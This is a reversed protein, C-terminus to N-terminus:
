LSLRIPLRQFFEDYKKGLVTLSYKEQVLRRGNQVIKERLDPNNFLMNVQQVFTEIDDGILINEGNKVDLGEAGKSTSVVPTGLAMSEIIKLRTGSGIRIPVVSVWSHAVAQRVDRLLGTFHVNSDEIVGPFAVGTTDGIITLKVEPNIVKLRPYIEDILFRAADVNAPYTFAGTFVIAGMQPQGYEARYYNTDICHPIIEVLPFNPDVELINQKELESPVTVATVNQLLSHVFRSSKWLTLGTRFKASLRTQKHYADKALGIELADIVTPIGKIQSTCHSIFGPVSVESGIVLDFSDSALIKKVSQAFENNYTQHIARPLPSFLGGLAKLGKEQPDFRRAPIVIVEQCFNKLIPINAEAEEISITSALSILTIRHNKSLERILHYIRIKAGNIPPYPFWASLFLIKV